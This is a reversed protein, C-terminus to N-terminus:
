ASVSHQVPIFKRRKPPIVAVMKLARFSLENGENDTEMFV